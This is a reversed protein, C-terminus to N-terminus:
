FDGPALVETYGDAVPTAKIGNPCTSCTKSIIAVPFADMNLVLMFISSMAAREADFEGSLGAFLCTLLSLAYGKHKAFPM